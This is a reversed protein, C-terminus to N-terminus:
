RATTASDGQSTARAAGPTDGTWRKFARRFSRVNSFGLEHAIQEFSMATGRVWEEARARRSEELLESYSTNMNQLSRRLTRTSTQLIRALQELDPPPGHPAALVRRAQALLGNVGPAVPAREHCYQEALAATAPDAGIIPADLLAADFDVETVKADFVPEFGLFARYREAYEPRPYALRLARVPLAGGYLTAGLAAFAALLGETAFPRFPALPITEEASLTACGNQVELVLDWAPSLTRYHRLAAALAAGVTQSSMLALGLMGMQSLRMSGGYDLGLAPNRTLELANRALLGFQQYSIRADPSELMSPTVGTNALLAARDAGQRVATEVLARPHHPPVVLDAHTFFKKM